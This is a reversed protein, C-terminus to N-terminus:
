KVRRDQFGQCLDPPTRSSGQLNDENNVKQGKRSGGRDPSPWLELPTNGELALNRLRLVISMQPWVITVPLQGTCKKHHQAANKDEIWEIGLAAGRITM